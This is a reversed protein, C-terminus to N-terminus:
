VYHLAIPRYNTPNTHDKGPKPIPIVTANHWTSPFADATWYHNFISLLLQLSCPLLHKLLQCHINDPGPTSDKSSNIADKLEELQIPHNYYETNDSAFYITRARRAITARCDVRCNVWLIRVILIHIYYRHVSTVALPKALM